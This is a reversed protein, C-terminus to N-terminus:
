IQNPLLHRMLLAKNKGNNGESLEAESKFDLLYGPCRNGISPKADAFSWQTHISGGGGRQCAPLVIKIFAEMALQKIASTCMGAARAIPM